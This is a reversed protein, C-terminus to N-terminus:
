EGSPSAGPSAGPTPSGTAEQLQQQLAQTKATDLQGKLAERMDPETLDLAKQRALDGKRVQGAAYAIAALTAYVNANDPNAEAVAEQATAASELDGLAQYAIVMQRGLGDDIPEPDLDLYSEWADAAERLKAEGSATFTETETKFNGGLGALQYRARVLEAWAEPDKPRAKTAALADAERKQADKVTDDDSVQQESFADFLGGSVEGGIGFLVLGGGMLLALTVYVVKITRRRGRGRLDFLM